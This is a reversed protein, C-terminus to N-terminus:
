FPVSAYSESNMEFYMYLSVHPSLATFCVQFNSPVMDLGIGARYMLLLSAQNVGTSAALATPDVALEAAAMVQSINHGATAQQGAIDLATRYIKSGPIRMDLVQLRLALAIM